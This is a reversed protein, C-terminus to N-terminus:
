TLTPTYIQTHTHTDIHLDTQRDMRSQEISCWCVLVKVVSGGGCQWVCVSGGGVVSSGERVLLTHAGGVLDHVM